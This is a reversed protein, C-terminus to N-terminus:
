RWHDAPYMGGLRSYGVRMGNARAVPLYDPNNLVAYKMRAKWDSLEKLAAGYRSDTAKEYERMRAYATYYPHCEVPGPPEDTANVLDVMTRRYDVYYTVVASPTPWLYLGLYRPRKAGITIRALETGLGSTQHLTVTGAAPASLYVDTIEIFDNLTASFSVATVGNLAKSLSAMYGGTRIGEIFATQTTDAANDSKAFMEAAASPQVAVATRGFPVYHSPIGSNSPPDPEVIRYRDLAMVRLTRDNTRESIHRIEAVSEPLVYRSQAAVSAFTLPSDSDLIRSMGQEAVISRVADNLWKTVRTTVATAPSSQYGCDEYVSAQMEALTM